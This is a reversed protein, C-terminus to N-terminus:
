HRSQALAEFAMARDFPYAAIASSMSGRQQQRMMPDGFVAFLTCMRASGRFVCKIRFTTNANSVPFCAGAFKAHEAVSSSRVNGLSRTSSSEEQQVRWGPVRLHM